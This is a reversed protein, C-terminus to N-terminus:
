VTTTLILIVWLKKAQLDEADQKGGRGSQGAKEEKFAQQNAAIHLPLAAAGRILLAGKWCAPQQVSTEGGAKAGKHPHQAEDLRVVARVTLSCMVTDSYLPLLPFTVKTFSCEM